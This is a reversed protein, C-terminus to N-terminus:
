RAPPEEKLLQELQSKRQPDREAEVITKLAMTRATAFAKDAAVSVDPAVGTGEWNTHTIPSVARGTPVFVQFHANLPYVDGPNAGGGTTEGVLTARKLNKLNYSFEEAGSFTHSSTLVYVPKKQGFRKGPVFDITHFQETRDGERFYLNNLHTRKDFLYSTMFAVMEPEGGGNKRLDIILADTNAVLAMAASITEGAWQPPAFARLDIYGINGPLREVREVGYNLREMWEHQRANEEATPEATARQPVAEDSYRVRLHKDHTVAQLEGTLEKAFARAEDASAFKAGSRPKQKLTAEVKAAVDPFVYLAKLKDVTGKVVADPSGIDAPAAPQALAQLSASLVLAAFAIARRVNM